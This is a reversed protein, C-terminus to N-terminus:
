QLVGVGMSRHPRDFVSLARPNVMNINPQSLESREGIEGDVAVGVTLGAGALGVADLERGAATSMAFTVAM